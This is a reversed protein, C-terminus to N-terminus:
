IIYDIHSNQKLNDDIKIGLLKFTHVREILNGQFSIQPPHDDALSGIIMEKTKSANLSM